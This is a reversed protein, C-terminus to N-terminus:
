KDGRFDTVLRLPPDSLHIEGNADLDFATVNVTETVHNLTIDKTLVQRVSPNLHVVVGIANLDRGDNHAHYGFFNVGLIYHGPELCRLSITEKARSIITTGPPAPINSDSWGKNDQDLTACGMQRNGFFVPKGKPPVLWIDIDADYHEVDWEISLLHQAQQSVGTQPPVKPNVAVIVIALMCLLLDALAIWIPSRDRIM